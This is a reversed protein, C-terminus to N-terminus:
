LQDVRGGSPIEHTMEHFESVIHGFYLFVDKENSLRDCKNMRVSGGVQRVVAIGHEVGGVGGKDLLDLDLTLIM